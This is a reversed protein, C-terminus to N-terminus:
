AQRSEWPDTPESPDSPESPESPEDPDSAVDPEDDDGGGDDGGDDDDDDDAGETSMRPETVLRRLAPERALESRVAESGSLVADIQADGIGAAALTTRPDREYTELLSPDDALRLFFESLRPESVVSTM